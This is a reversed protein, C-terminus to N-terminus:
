KRGGRGFVKDEGIQEAAQDQLDDLLNLLGELLEKKKSLPHREIYAEDKGMRTAEEKVQSNMKGITDILARKQRRLLPHNVKLAVLPAM